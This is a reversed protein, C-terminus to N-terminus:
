MQEWMEEETRFLGSIIMHNYGSLTQLTSQFDIMTGFEKKINKFSAKYSSISNFVVIESDPNLRGDLSYFYIGELREEFYNFREERSDWNMSNSRRVFTMYVDDSVDIEPNIFGYLLFSM